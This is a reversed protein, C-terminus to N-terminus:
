SRPESAPRATKLPHVAKKAAKRVRGSPHGLGIAEIATGLEPHEVRVLRTLAAEDVLAWLAPPLDDQTVPGGALAAAIALREVIM